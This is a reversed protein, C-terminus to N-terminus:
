AKVLKSDDIPLEVKENLPHETPSSSRPQTTKKRLLYILAIIGALVGLGLIVGVVIYIVRRDILNNPNSSLSDRCLDDFKSQKSNACRGLGKVTQGDPTTESAKETKADSTSLPETTSEAYSFEKPPMYEFPPLEEITGNEQCTTKINLQSLYEPNDWGCLHDYAGEAFDLKVDSYQPLTGSCVPRGQCNHQISKFLRLLPEETIEYGGDGGMQLHCIGNASCRFAEQESELFLFLRDLKMVYSGNGTGCGLEYSTGACVGTQESLYTKEPLFPNSDVRYVYLTIISLLYLITM